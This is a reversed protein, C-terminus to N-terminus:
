LASFSLLVRHRFFSPRLMLFRGPQIPPQQGRESEPISSNQLPIQQTDCVRPPEEDTSFGFGGLRLVRLKVFPPAGVIPCVRATVRM